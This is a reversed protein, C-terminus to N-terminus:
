ACLELEFQYMMAHNTTVLISDTLHAPVSASFLHELDHETIINM